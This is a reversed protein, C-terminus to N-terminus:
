SAMRGFISQVNRGDRQSFCISLVQLSGLETGIGNNGRTVHNFITVKRSEARLLVRTRISLEAVKIEIVLAKTFGARLIVRVVM